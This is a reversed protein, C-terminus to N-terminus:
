LGEDILMVVSWYVHFCIAKGCCPELLGFLALFVSVDVSVSSSHNVAM